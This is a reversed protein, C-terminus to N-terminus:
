RGQAIGRAVEVDVVLRGARDDALLRESVRLFHEPNAALLQPTLEYPLLGRLPGLEPAFEVPIEDRLTAETVRLFPTTMTEPASTWHIWLRTPFTTVGEMPALGIRPTM